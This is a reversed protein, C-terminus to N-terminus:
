FCGVMANLASSDSHPVSFTVEADDEIDEVVVADETARFLITEDGGDVEL